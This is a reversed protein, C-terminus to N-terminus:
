AAHDRFGALAHGQQHLALIGPGEHRHFDASLSSRPHRLASKGRRQGDRGERATGRGWGTTAPLGLAAHQAYLWM